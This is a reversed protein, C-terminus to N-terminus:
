SLGETQCQETAASTGKQFRTNWKELGSVATATDFSWPSGATSLKWLAIIAVAVCLDLARALLLSDPRGALFSPSISLDELAFLAPRLGTTNAHEVFLLLKSGQRM